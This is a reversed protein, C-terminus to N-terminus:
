KSALMAKAKSLFSIYLIYVILQLVLAILALVAAVLAGSGNRFILVILQAIIILVYMGILVKFISAGKQDIASDGLKDALNRIGQIVYIMVFLSAVSGLADFISKAIGVNSLISSLASFLIGALIAYLAVKFAPEDNSAKNVGILQIIFAIIALVGAGVGFLIAGAGSTLAAAAASDNASALTTLSFILTAIACVTAILSLIEATFIKKVGNAANPYTM